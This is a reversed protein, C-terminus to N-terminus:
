VAKVCVAENPVHLQDGSSLNKLFDKHLLVEYQGLVSNSQQILGMVEECRRKVIEM